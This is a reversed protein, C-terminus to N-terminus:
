SVDWKERTMALTQQTNSTQNIINEIFTRDLNNNSIYYHLHCFKNLALIYVYIYVHM